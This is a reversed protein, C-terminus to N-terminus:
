IIKDYLRKMIISIMEKKSTSPMPTVSLDVSIYPCIVGLNSYSEKSSLTINSLLEKANGVLMFPKMVDKIEGNKIYYADIVNFLYEGTTTNFKTPDPFLNLIYIGEKELTYIDGISGKEKIDFILNSVNLCPSSKFSVRASNSTNEFNTIKSWYNNCIPKIFRDNEIIATKKTPFGEGDIPGSLLGGDLSGDDTLNINIDNVNDNIKDNIKLYTDNKHLSEASIANSLLGLLVCSFSYPSFIINTKDKKNDVKKKRLKRALNLMRASDKIDKKIKDINNDRYVFMRGAFLNSNSMLIEMELFTDKYSYDLNNSNCINKYRTKTSLLLKDFRIKYDNAIDNIEMEIQRAFDDININVINEDYIGKIDKIKSNDAFNYDHIRETLKGYIISQNIMNQISKENLDTTFSFGLYNDKITRVSLGSEDYTNISRLKNFEIDIENKTNDEIYFELRNIDKDVNKNIIDILEQRLM